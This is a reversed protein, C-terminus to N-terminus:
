VHYNWERRNSIQGLTSARFDETLRRLIPHDPDLDTDAIRSVLRLESATSTTFAAVYDPISRAPIDQEIVPVDRDTLLAIVSDRTIGPLCHTTKPTVVRGDGAVLFVNHASTETVLGGRDPFLLDDDGDKRSKLGLYPDFYNRSIKRSITETSRPHDSLGLAIVPAPGPAPIPMAFICSRVAPHADLRMIGEDVFAIPRIYLDGTEFGRVLDAVARTQVEPALHANEFGLYECTQRFRELHEALRYVAPGEPTAYCRIGEFACVAYNLSFLMPGFRVEEAGVFEGDLYIRSM